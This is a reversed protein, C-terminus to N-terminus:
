CNYMLSLQSTQKQKYFPLLNNQFLIDYLIMNRFYINVGRQSPIHGIKLFCDKSSFADIFVLEITRIYIHYSPDIVPILHSNNNFFLILKHVSDSKIGFLYSQYHYRIETSDNYGYLEVNSTIMKNYFHFLSYSMILSDNTFVVYDYLNIYDIQKLVYLWKGMDLYQNNPIEYYAKIKNQINDYLKNNYPLGITNIVIIDNNDFSLYNLNNITEYLKELSNTNCAIITLIKKAHLSPNYTNEKM